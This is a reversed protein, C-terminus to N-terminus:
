LRVFPIMSLSLRLIMASVMVSLVEPLKFCSILWAAFGTFSMAGDLSSADGAKSSAFGMVIEMIDYTFNNLILPVVTMFLFVLIAKMAIYGLVKDTFIRGVASGLFSLIAGM